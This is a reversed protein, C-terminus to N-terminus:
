RRLEELPVAMVEYAGAVSRGEPARAGIWLTTGQQTTFM